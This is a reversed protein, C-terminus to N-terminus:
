SIKQGNEVKKRSDPTLLVVNNKEESSAALLMGQSEIGKMKRPELNAIVIIQKGKLEEKTYFQKIGALITRKGLEKGVDINLKLLKDAGEVDEASLIEAIRLDLKEWDQFQINAVNTMIEKIKPQKNLKKNKINFLEELSKNNSVIEKVKIIEEESIKSFLPKPNKVSFTGLNFDLASDWIKSNELTEKLGLQDWAQSTKKPLFPNLAIALIRNLYLCLYLVTSVRKKDEKIIKWPKNDNFYKNGESCLLFIEQFATRIENKELLNTIELFKKGIVKTFTKDEKILDKPLPQNIKGNFNAKVFSLVRNLFNGYNGLLQSNNTEQFEKWKFESDGSEPIVKTLYGRWVDVDIGSQNLKECFVGRKKSKSFKGGEYNLYQLGIVNRALNFNGEAICMAPWFITHFPINDKGLFNFIEAEGQWYEKWKKTIEKTSSVYGIPADFWVYLVKDEFGKLPIKIGHKLDRSICRPKLGKNIWGKAIGKVQSRWMDQKNIWKELPKQLKDLSIFLHEVEKIELNGGTIASKPNILKNPELLTTCKECQDGNAEEYGCEPCTGKIYRDPLFRDEEKSYFVKIKGKKIYGNKYIQKFFDQSTKHHIEKSTRSFNDYSILFWNYIKKHEKFLKDSFKKIPVNISEAAIESTSGNEDTGGVFLTKYGRARSFRAFIDAPLHSGVIHGLHPVNNIYPLAATILRKEKGQKKLTPKAM